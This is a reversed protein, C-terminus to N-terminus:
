EVLVFAGWYYPEYKKRMETQTENFSKRIDKLKLLRTYFSTMFESTEKDPVQWLSMILFKAGAMKFARQLGYVGESGKIDGLGTECASMVVLQTNQLNMNSVEYATLIGDEQETEAATINNNAGTLALGSRMLPNTNTIISSLKNATSIDVSTGGRFDIDGSETKKTAQATIEKPDPYFFGHTAIHLIKPSNKGDLSKLNEESALLGEFENTALKNDSFIKNISNAEAKTGALYKWIENQSNDTTFTAGGFISINLDKALLNTSNKETILQTSSLSNLTYKDSM